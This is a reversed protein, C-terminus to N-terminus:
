PSLSPSNFLHDTVQQDSTCFVCFCVFAPQSVKSDVNNLEATKATVDLDTVGRNLNSEEPASVQSVEEADIDTEETVPATQEAGTLERGSGLFTCVCVPPYARVGARVRPCVLMYAFM